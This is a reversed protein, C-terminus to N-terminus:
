PKSRDQREGRQRIVRCPVGVAISNPPINRTVVSGAGIVAGDGITVNGLVTVRAGLWVDDGITIPQAILGQDKIPRIPDFYVHSESVLICSNAIAVRSGIKIEGSGALVCYEHISVRDGLSVNAPSSITVADTINSNAGVSKLVHRYLENRVRMALPYPKYKLWGLLILVVRRVIRSILMM